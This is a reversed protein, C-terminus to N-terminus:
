LSLLLGELGNLVLIRYLSSSKSNLTLGALVLGFYSSLELGSGHCYITGVIRGSSGEMMSSLSLSGTMFGGPLLSIGDGMGISIGTGSPNNSSSSSGLTFM